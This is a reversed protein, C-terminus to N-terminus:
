SAWNSPAWATPLGGLKDRTVTDADIGDVGQYGAPRESNPLARQRMQVGRVSPYQDVDLNWASWFKQFSLGHYLEDPTLGCHWGLYLGPIWGPTRVARFWQQCYAIVDQAPTGPTVGELDCWVTVGRPIGLRICEEVAVNGNASGKVASPTWAAESEVHQVPMVALGADHLAQVEALNLDFDHRPQRRIYRVAFRHGRAVWARAGEADIVCNSDFGITGEPLQIVQGSM